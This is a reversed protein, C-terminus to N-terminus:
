FWRSQRTAPHHSSVRAGALREAVSSNLTCCMKHCQVSYTDLLTVSTSVGGDMTKRQPEAQRMVGVECSAPGTKMGSNGHTDREVPQGSGTLAVVHQVEQEEADTDNLKELSSSAGYSQQMSCSHLHRDPFEKLDAQPQVEDLQMKSHQRRTTKGHKFRTGDSDSDDDDSDAVVDLQEGNGFPAEERGCLRRRKSSPVSTLLNEHLLTPQHTFHTQNENTGTRHPSSSLSQACETAPLEDEGDGLGPTCQKSETGRSCDTRHLQGSRRLLRRTPRNQAEAESCEKNVVPQQNRELAPQKRALSQDSESIYMNVSVEVECGDSESDPVDHLGQQQSPKELGSSQRSLKRRSRSRPYM